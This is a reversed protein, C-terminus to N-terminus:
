ETEEVTGPCYAEYLAAHDKISQNTGTSKGTVCIFGQGDSNEGYSAACFGSESVYGTKSCSVSVAGTDQYQIRRTFLNSVVQGEPHQPTPSSEYVPTNLVTNCFENDLATKLIIAIDEVTSYHNEDYLGVCNTFHSTDSLGLEELKENMADVMAEHSGFITLALGMCSDAGSKLICGYFLEEVPIVEDVEYGVVSCNNSFTYDAVARTMTFTGHTLTEPTVHEAAVLLTLIKTMSAPNIRAKPDRQALVEGTELDLLLAYQSPFDASIQATNATPTIAWAPEEPEVVVPEPAAALVQEPEEAIPLEPEPQRDILAMAATVTLGLLAVVSLVRLRRLMARRRRQARRKERAKRRSRQVEPDLSDSFTNEDPASYYSNM